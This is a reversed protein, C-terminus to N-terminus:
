RHVQAPRRTRPHKHHTARGCGMLWLAAAALPAAAAGGGGGDGGGGHGSVSGGEGVPVRGRGRERRGQRRRRRSCRRRQRRGRGRRGGGGAAPLLAAHAAEEPLGDRLLLHAPLGVDPRQRHPLLLVLDVDAGHLLEEALLLLRRRPRPRGRRVRRGRM